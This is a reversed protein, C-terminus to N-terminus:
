AAKMKQNVQVVDLPIGSRWEGDVHLEFSYQGVMDFQLNGMNMVLNVTTHNSSPHKRLVDVEGDISQLVKGKPDLLKIQIGHKGLESEGFRLRLSVSCQPHRFPFVSSGLADFTGVIVLKENYNHASDSLTFIEIEM